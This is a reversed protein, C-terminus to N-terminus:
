FFSFPFKTSHVDFRDRNSIFGSFSIHTRIESANRNCYLPQLCSMIKTTIGPFFINRQQHICLETKLIIVNSGGGEFFMFHTKSRAFNVTNHGLLERFNNGERLVCILTTSHMCAQNSSFFFSQDKM